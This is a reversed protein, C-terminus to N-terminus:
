SCSIRPRTPGLPLPLVVNRLASVPTTAASRFRRLHAAVRRARRLGAAHAAETHQARVLRRLGVRVERAEFVHQQRGGITAEGPMPTPTSPAGASSGARARVPPLRGRAASARTPSPSSASSGVERRDYPCRRSSSSARATWASGSIRISSSGDAPSLAASVSCSAPCRCGNLSSADRDQEDVVLEVEDRRQAVPHGDELEPPEDRDSRAAVTNASWRTTSAYRPTSSSSRARHELQAAHSTDYPATSATRPMSRLHALALDDRQDPRVARALRRRQM